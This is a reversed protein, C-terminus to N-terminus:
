GFLIKHHDPFHPRTSKTKVAQLTSTHRESVPQSRVHILEAVISVAIEEPTEAGIDLGIPAFVQTFLTDEIGESRLHDFVMATKRRSGIMGIYRVPRRLVQKLVLADHKHGRTVIVVYESGSFLLDKFAANFNVVITERADPFRGANCYEERDDIVTIDFNVMGAIRAIHQSVHGAGFIYLASRVLLPIALFGPSFIVGRGTDSIRAKTEEDLADGVTAGALTFLSKSIEADTYRTVIFGETCRKVANSVADYVEKHRAEVPEIFISINGGCIMDEEAASKGDMKFVLMRHRETEIVKIAELRTQAEVAGGGITGFIDGEATIFMKAGQDRPAAGIKEVITALAGNKGKALHDSILSYLDM